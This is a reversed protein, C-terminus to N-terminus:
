EEEIPQEVKGCEQLAKAVLWCGMAWALGALWGALVDSPYHVGLYIHSVGVLFTLPLAIVLFYLKLRLDHM